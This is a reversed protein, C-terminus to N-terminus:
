LKRKKKIKEDATKLLGSLLILGFGALYVARAPVMSAIYPADISYMVNSFLGNNGGSLAIKGLTYFCIMVMGTVGATGAVPNVIYDSFIRLGLPVEKSLSENIKRIEKDMKSTIFSNLKSIDIKIKNLESKLKDETVVKDGLARALNENMLIRGVEGPNEFGAEYVFTKILKEPNQEANTQKALKQSLRRLLVEIEDIDRLKPLVDRFKVFFDPESSSLGVRRGTERIQAPEMEFTKEALDRRKKSVIYNFLSVNIGKRLISSSYRNVAAEFRLRAAAKRLEPIIELAEDIYENAQDLETGLDSIKAILQELRKKRRAIGKKLNQIEEPSCLVSGGGSNSNNNIKM